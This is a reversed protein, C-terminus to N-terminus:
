HTLDKEHQLDSFPHNEPILIAAPLLGSPVERAMAELGGTCAYQHMSPLLLIEFDAKLLFSTLHRM